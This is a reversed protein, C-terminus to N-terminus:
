TNYIATFQLLIKCAVLIADEDFIIAPNHLPLKSAPQKNATGIRFYAGPLDRLYYAFDEMGMSPKQLQVVPGAAVNEAAEEIYSVVTEDCILPDGDEIIRVQGVGGMAATTHEVIRFIAKQICARDEPRLSRVTGEMDVVAPISNDATGGVIKGITIVASEVPSCERSIINQLQQIVYSAILIPDTCKHPHAAHGAKGEIRIRISDSAAMMPGQRVGVSGVPLEPWCHFGIIVDPQLIELAGHLIMYKAGEGTEEAPQFIFCVSGRWANRTENLIRACTLAAAMHLDHGCCHCANVNESTFALGSAEKSPLADIDTRICVNKGPANGRIRAILGTRFSDDIVEIGGQLLQDKIYKTTQKEYGATEPHQHLYRRVAIANEKYDDVLQLFKETVKGM